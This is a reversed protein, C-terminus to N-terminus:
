ATCFEIETLTEETYESLAAASSFAMYRFSDDGAFFTDHKPSNWGPKYAICKAGWYDHTPEWDDPLTNSVHDEIATAYRTLIADGPHEVDDVELLIGHRHLTALHRRRSAPSKVGPFALDAYHYVFLLALADFAEVPMDAITKM